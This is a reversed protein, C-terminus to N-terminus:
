ELMAHSFIEKFTQPLKEVDLVMFGRGFPLEDVIWSAASPEAVFICYGQCRGDGKLAASIAAPAIGYRGLNADSFLFVLYDDAPETVIEHSAVAAAELSKDGSPSSRSHAYIQDVVAAREM